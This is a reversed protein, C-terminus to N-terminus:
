TFKKFYNLIHITVKKVIVKIKNKITESWLEYDHYSFWLNTEYDKM